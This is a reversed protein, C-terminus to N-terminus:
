VGLRLRRHVPRRRVVLWAVRGADGIYQSLGSLVRGVGSLRDIRIWVSRVGFSVVSGDGFQRCGGALGRALRIATAGRDRACRAGGGGRAPHDDGGGEVRIEPFTPIESGCASVAYRRRRATQYSSRYPSVTAEPEITAAGSATAPAFATTM